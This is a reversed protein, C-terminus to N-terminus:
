ASRRAGPYAYPNGNANDGTFTWVNTASNPDNQAHPEFCPQNFEYPYDQDGNDATPVNTSGVNTVSYPGGFHQETVGISFRLGSVMYPKTASTTLVAGSSAETITINGDPGPNIGLFGGGSGSCGSLGMGATLAAVTVCSRQLVRHM